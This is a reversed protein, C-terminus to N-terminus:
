TVSGPGTAPVYSQQAMTALQAATAQSPTYQPMYQPAYRNGTGFFSQLLTGTNQSAAAQMQQAAVAPAQVNGSDVSAATLASTDYQQPGPWGPITSTSGGASGSPSAGTSSTSGTGSSSSGNSSGTGSTADPINISTGAAISNPNTIQPNAQELTSLSIGYHAAINNLDANWAQASEPQGQKWPAITTTTAM